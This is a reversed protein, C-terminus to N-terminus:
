EAARLPTRAELEQLRRPRQDQIDCFHDFRVLYDDVAREWADDDPLGWRRRYDPSGPYPFLPVPDNSWVGHEAMLARWRAVEDPDDDSTLILNAQVFPVVRKALILRESLEDTGLRCKKDLAARGAVTLSEVGAEISVCGARGLLDIQAPKWLDLRTQVGFKVPREALAILLPENPLFIEDIFYVYEVGQAILGDLERILVPVPRKRYADRFNEKACFTCTFPCGRSAEMEAGPGTAPADFRHHQHRHRAVWDTPWRLAPLDTFAAAAPGGNVRIGGEGHPDWTCVHPLASWDEEGALRVIVEECEGMVVADVGLKRLATRPTTSGHPGVGVMLGGAGRLAEVTAMPVRLEPPACRWFLYSPATTVVTMDPAFAAVRATLEAMSWGLLQADLIAAEHGALELLAKAYGFELPLHPDRCGFYISGDFSWPPNVLAVRM